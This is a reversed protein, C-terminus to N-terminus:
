YLKDTKQKDFYGKRAVDGSSRFAQVGTGTFAIPM